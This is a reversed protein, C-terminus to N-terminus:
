DDTTRGESQRFVAIGLGGELPNVWPMADGSEGGRLECVLRRVAALVDRVTRVHRDVEASPQRRRALQLEVLLDTLDDCLADSLVRASRDDDLAGDRREGLTGRGNVCREDSM